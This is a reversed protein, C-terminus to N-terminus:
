EQTVVGAQPEMQAHRWSANQNWGQVYEHVEAAIM